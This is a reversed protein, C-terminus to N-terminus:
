VNSHVVSSLLVDRVDIILLGLCSKNPNSHKNDADSGLDITLEFGKYRTGKRSISDALWFFLADSSQFVLQFVLQITYELM